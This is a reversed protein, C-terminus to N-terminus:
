SQIRLVPNVCLLNEFFVTQIFSHTFLSDYEKIHFGRTIWAITGEITLCYTLM